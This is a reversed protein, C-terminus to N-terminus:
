GFSPQSIKEQVTRRIFALLLRKLSLATKKKRDMFIFGTSFVQVFRAVRKRTSM